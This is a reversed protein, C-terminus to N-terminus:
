QIEKMPNAMADDIEARLATIADSCRQARHPDVQGSFLSELAELAQQLIETRPDTM